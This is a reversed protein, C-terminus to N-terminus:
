CGFDLDHQVFVACHPLAAAASEALNASDFFGFVAAGSGTMAAYVAGHALLSRRVEGIEPRMATIPEEFDNIYIASRLSDRNLVTPTAGDGRPMIAAYAARTSVAESRPKAIVLSLGDLGTADVPTLREGIGEALMPRNYVFFPCDAGVTAAVAALAADDMDLGLLDNACRLAFAADSSGGGMGAGHPIHKELTIDLPPLPSGVAKELARLAKLVINDSPACDPVDGSQVFNGEAGAAPTMELIDCWAVPLMVTSIDHYGDPRRRLVQLGLNIKANPFVIM